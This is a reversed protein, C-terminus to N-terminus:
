LTDGLDSRPSRAGPAASRPTTTTVWREAIPEEEAKRLV